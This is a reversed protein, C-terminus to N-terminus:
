IHENHHKIKQRSGNAHVTQIQNKFAKFDIQLDQSLNNLNFIIETLGRIPLDLQEPITLDMKYSLNSIHKKRYTALEWSVGKVIPMTSLNQSQAPFILLYLIIISSIYRM